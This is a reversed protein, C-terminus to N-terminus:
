FQVRSTLVPLHSLVQLRQPLQNGLSRGTGSCQGRTRRPEERRRGYKGVLRSDRRVWRCSYRQGSWPESGGVKWEPEKEQVEVVRRIFLSRCLDNLSPPCVYSGSSKHVPHHRFTPDESPSTLGWPIPSLSFHSGSTPSCELGSSLGCDRTEFDSSALNRGHTYMSRTHDTVPTTSSSHRYRHPSPDM